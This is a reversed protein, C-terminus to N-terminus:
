CNASRYGNFQIEISLFQTTSSSLSTNCWSHLSDPTALFRPKIFKGTQAENIPELSSSAQPGSSNPRSEPSSPITAMKEVTSVGRKGPDNSSTGRRM